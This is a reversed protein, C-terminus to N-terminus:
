FKIAPLFFMSLLTSMLFFLPKASSSAKSTQMAVAIGAQASKALPLTTFPTYSLPSPIENGIGLPKESARCSFLFAPKKRM